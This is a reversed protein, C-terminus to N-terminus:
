LMEPLQYFSIHVLGLVGAFFLLFGAAVFIYYSETDRRFYLSGVIVMLVPLLFRGMGFGLALIRSFYKGFTGAGGFLSFVALIALAILFVAVISRKTDSKLVSKRKGWGNGNGNKGKDKKRRRGM